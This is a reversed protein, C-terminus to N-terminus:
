EVIVIRKRRDAMFRLAERETLFCPHRYYDGQHWAWVWQGILLKEDLQFGRPSDVGTATPAVM